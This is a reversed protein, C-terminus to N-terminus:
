PYLGQERRDQQEKIHDEYKRITTQLVPLLDKNDIIDDIRELRRLEALIKNADRLQTVEPGEATYLIIQPKPIAEHREHPILFEVQLTNIIAGMEKIREQLKSQYNALLAQAHKSDRYAVTLQGYDIENLITSYIFSTIFHIRDKYNDLEESKARLSETATDAQSQAEAIAVAYDSRALERTEKLSEIATYAESQVKAIAAAHNAEAIDLATKRNIAYRLSPLKKLLSSISQLSLREILGDTWPPWDM